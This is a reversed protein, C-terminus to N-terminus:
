RVGLLAMLALSVSQFPGWGLPLSVYVVKMFIAVMMASGGIGIVSALVPRRYGGILVFATLFGATALFFGFVDVLLVYGLTAGIGWALRTASPRAEGPPPEPAEAAGQMLSQLVGDVSRAEGFLLRKGLEYACTIGLLGLIARPWFEPGIRDAPGVYEIRGALFYFWGALALLAAYPAARALRRGPTV